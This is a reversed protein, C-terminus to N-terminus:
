HVEGELRSRSVYRVLTTLHYAALSPYPGTFVRDYNVMDGVRNVTTVGLWTMADAFREAEGETMWYGIARIYERLPHEAMLKPVMGLSPIPHIYVFRELPSLEFAPETSYVVTWNTSGESAYLEIGGEVAGEVRHINRKFQLEAHKDLELPNRPHNADFAAMEEALVEAFRQALTEEGGGSATIPGTILLRGGDDMAGTRDTEDESAAESGDGDPLGGRAPEEVLIVQPSVAQQQDWLSVDLATLKAATRIAGEDRLKAASIVSFAYNITGESLTVSGQTVSPLERLSGVTQGSTFVRNVHSVFGATLEDREDPWTLVAMARVLPSDPDVDRFSDLFCNIFVPERNEPKMLFVNKTLLNALTYEVAAIIPGGAFYGIPGAPLVRSFEMGSSDLVWRDLREPTIFANRLMHITKEYRYMSVIADFYDRIYVADYGMALLLREASKRRPYDPQSWHEAVADLFDIIEMHSLAALQRRTATLEKVIHGLATPELLPMTVVAGSSLTHEFGDGELWEGAIYFPNAICPRPEDEIM